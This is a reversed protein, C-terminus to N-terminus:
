RTQVEASRAHRNQIAIQIHNQNAIQPYSKPHFKPHRDKPLIKPPAAGEASRYLKGMRAPKLGQPVNHTVRLRDTISKSRVGLAPKLKQHGRGSSERAQEAGPM